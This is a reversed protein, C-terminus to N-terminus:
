YGWGDIEVGCGPCHWEWSLGLAGQIDSHATDAQTEHCSRYNCVPCTLCFHITVRANMKTGENM